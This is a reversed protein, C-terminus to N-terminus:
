HTRDSRTKEFVRGLETGAQAHPIGKKITPWAEKALNAIITKGIGTVESKLLNALANPQRSILADFVKGVESQFEHLQEAREANLTEEYQSEAQYVEDAWQKRADALREADKFEQDTLTKRRGAIM